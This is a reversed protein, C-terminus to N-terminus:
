TSVMVSYFIYIYIAFDQGSCHCIRTGRASDTAVTCEALGHWLITPPGFLRFILLQELDVGLPHASCWEQSPELWGRVLFFVPCRETSRRTQANCLLKAVELRVFCYGFQWLIEAAVRLGLRHHSTTVNSKEVSSETEQKPKPAM